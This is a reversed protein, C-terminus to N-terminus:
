SSKHIGNQTLSKLPKAVVLLVTKMLIMFDM